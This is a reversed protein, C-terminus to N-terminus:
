RFKVLMAILCAARLTLMARRQCRLRLRMIMIMGRM